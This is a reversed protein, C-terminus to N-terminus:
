QTIIIEKQKEINFAMNKKALQAIEKNSYSDKLDYRDFTVVVYRDSVYASAPKSLCTEQNPSIVYTISKEIKTTTFFGKYYFHIFIDKSSANNIRIEKDTCEIMFPQPVPQVQKLEKEKEVIAPFEQESRQIKPEYTKTAIVPQSPKITKEKRTVEKEQAFGKERREADPVSEKVTIADQLYYTTLKDIILQRYPESVVSLSPADFYSDKIIAKMNEQFPICKKTQGAAISQADTLKKDNIGYLSFWMRKDFDNQLTITEGKFDEQADFLQQDAINIKTLHNSEFAFVTDIANSMLSSSDELYSIQYGIFGNYDQPLAFNPVTKADIKESKNQAIEITEPMSNEDNEKKDADITHDTNSSLSIEKKPVKQIVGAITLIGPKKQEYRAVVIDNYSNNEITIEALDFSNSKFMSKKIKLESDHFNKLDAQTNLITYERTTLSDTLECNSVSYALTDYEEFGIPVAKDPTIKISKERRVYKKNDKKYLGVFIDKSTTNTIQMNFSGTLEHIEDTATQATSEAEEQDNDQALSSTVKLTHHADNKQKLISDVDVPEKKQPDSFWKSLRVITTKQSITGGRLTHNISLLPTIKKQEEEFIIWLSPKKYDTYSTPYFLKKNYTIKTQSECLASDSIKELQQSNKTAYVAVTWDRTTDNNITLSDSAFITSLSYSNKAVIKKFNELYGRGVLFGKALPTDNAELLNISEKLYDNSQSAIFIIETNIPVAIGISKKPECEFITTALDCDFKKKTTNPVYRAVFLTKDYDNYLTIKKLSLPNKKSFSLTNITVTTDTILQAQLAEKEKELIIKKSLLIDESSFAYIYKKQKIKDAMLSFTHSKLPVISAPSTDIQKWRSPGFSEYIAVWMTKASLKNEVTFFYNSASTSLTIHSHTVIFFIFINYLTYLRM